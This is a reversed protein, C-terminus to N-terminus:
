NKEFIDKVLNNMEKKRSNTKEIDLYFENNKFNLIDNEKIGKPLKESKVNIIEGTYINECVAINNEFRDIAFYKIKNNSVLNSISNLINKISSFINDSKEKSLELDM